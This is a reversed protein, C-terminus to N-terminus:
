QKASTKLHMQKLSINANTNLHWQIEGSPGNWLVDADTYFMAQCQLLHYTITPLIETVQKIM